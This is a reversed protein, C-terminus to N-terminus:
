HSAARKSSTAPRRWTREQLLVEWAFGSFQRSRMEHAATTSLGELRVVVPLELKIHQCASVIGKAITACNVIGGFVNVLIVKVKAFCLCCTVVCSCSEAHFSALMSSFLTGFLLLQVLLRMNVSLCSHAFLVTKTQGHNSTCVAATFILSFSSIMIGTSATDPPKINLRLVHTGECENELTIDKDTM